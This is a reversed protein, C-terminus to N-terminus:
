HWQWTKLKTELAYMLAMQKKTDFEEVFRHLLRRLEPSVDDGLMVRPAASCVTIHPTMNRQYMTECVLVRAVARCDLAREPTPSDNCAYALGGSLNALVDHDTPSVTRQISSHCIVGGTQIM